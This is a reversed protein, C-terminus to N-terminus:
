AVTTARAARFRFAVAGVLGLAMVVYAPILGVRRFLNTPPEARIEVPAVLTGAVRTQTESKESVRDATVRGRRDVACSVGTNVARVMPVGLEVCRWRAALQHQRRGPDWSGFWGDNSVNILLPAPGGEGGGGEGMVLRRCLGARTAEFCIPTAVRVTRSQGGPTEVKVDIGGARRGVSLDFHMGAAGLSVLWDQVGPWRWVYPIAEGFPTLEIKDYRAETARGDDVLVVSNYRRAKASGPSDLVAAAADGDIAVAGVLMPVGAGQQAEVLEDHFVNANVKEVPRGQADKIAYVIAERHLAQVAGPNLAPGPFMTEPWVIMDPPPKSGAAQGTLELFTRMDRLRDAVGWGIKNDQPLNTQVVGVRVTEVAGPRTSREGVWSASAWVAAVALAGVGGASRPIGSWGAADAVAGALAACLFSVGYVGVLAAPAALAPSEILPQGLLFWAYGTLAIEGRLVEVATWLVPVVVSMPVPWDAARAKALAWVFLAPYLALYVAILPYGPASVNILWVEEVVWLPLTGLGALLAARVAGWGRPDAACGAWVLPAAAALTLPWLGAPPLSLATFVAYGLGSLVFSWWRPATSVIARARGAM